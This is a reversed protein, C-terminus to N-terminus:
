DYIEDSLKLIKENSFYGLSGRRTRNRGKIKIGIEDKSILVKIGINRVSSSNAYMTVNDFIIYKTGNNVFAVYKLDMGEVGKQLPRFYHTYEFKEFSSKDKETPFELEVKNKTGFRYVIYNLNTDVNLYMMKGKPTQFSYITKENPLKYLLNKQSFITISLLLINLTLILKTFTM